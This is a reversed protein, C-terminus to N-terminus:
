TQKLIATTADELSALSVLRPDQGILQCAKTHGADRACDLATRGICDLMGVARFRPHQLLLRCVEVQGHAAAYHLATWGRSTRADAATFRRHELLVRCTMAHGGSAAWHLATWGDADAVNPVAFREHDLLAGCVCAHGSVAARHLATQGVNDQESTLAFQSCDLLLRCVCLHGREAAAHLATRDHITRTDHGTFRPSTVLVECAETQGAQAAHILATRSFCDTANAEDFSSRQLLTRCVTSLGRSAAYHLASCGSKDKANVEEFRPQRLIALAEATDGVKVAEFLEWSIPLDPLAMHPPDLETRLGPLVVSQEVDPNTLASIPEVCPEPLISLPEVRPEPLTAVAERVFVGLKPQIPVPRANSIPETSERQQGQQQRQQLQQQQWWETSGDRIVGIATAMRVQQKDRLARAVQGSIDQQSDITPEIAKGRGGKQAWTSEVAVKSCQCNCLERVLALQNSLDRVAGSHEFAQQEMLQEQKQANRVQGEVLQALKTMVLLTREQAAEAQTAFTEFDDRLQRIQDQLDGAAGFRPRIKASRHGQAIGQRLRRLPPLGLSALAAEQDAFVESELGSNNLVFIGREGSAEQVVTAPALGAQLPEQATGIPGRASSLHEQVHNAPSHRAGLPEEDSSPPASSQISFSASM